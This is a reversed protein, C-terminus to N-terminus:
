PLAVRRMERTLIWITANALAVLIWLYRQFALHLFIGSAMYALLALMFALALDRWEPRRHAWFRSLRWLQVMTVTIIALFALLGVLGLDAAMELYLNHARRNTELFRLDLENAYQSSYSTFFLGPGVGVLPHDRFAYFAALNETLRGRIAGDSASEGASVAESATVLSQIRVIYDPAVFFTLAVLTAGLAVVHRVRVFGALVIGVVLLVLAVAAGRSFTLLTGSAILAGCGIATLRLMRTAEYRAVWVALPLLVLLIQAYRNQEGIPGTLRPRLESSGDQGPTVSFGGRGVQALGGLDQSYSGTTEQWVSIAGMIAGALLLTWVVRRLMDPTRVVNTVLVYLLLGETLFGVVAEVSTPEARGAVTASLVLAALYGVMLGLAPTVVLPQRRLLVHAVLPVLLLGVTMTGFISSGSGGAAVVPLNVYFIAVFLITAADPRTMLALVLPACALAILEPRGLAVAVGLLIAAATPALARPIQSRRGAPPVPPDWSGRLAPLTASASM